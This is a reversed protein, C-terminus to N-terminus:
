SIIPKRILIAEEYGLGGPMMLRDRVAFGFKEYFAVIPGNTEVFIELGERDAEECLTQVLMRGAGSGKRKHVTLVLELLIHPRTAMYSKRTQALFDIFSKCLEHDHDPTLSLLSWTGASLDGDNRVLQDNIKDCTTRSGETSPAM